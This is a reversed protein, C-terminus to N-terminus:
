NVEMRVEYSSTCHILLQKINAISVCHSSTLYTEFYQICYLAICYMWNMVTYHQKNLATSHTCYPATCHLATCTTCYLLTCHWTCNPLGSSCGFGGLRAASIETIILVFWNLLYFYKLVIHHYKSCWYMSVYCLNQTDTHFKALSFKAEQPPNSCHQM